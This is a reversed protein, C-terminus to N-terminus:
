IPALYRGEGTCDEIDISLGIIGAEGVPLATALLALLALLPGPLPGPLAMVAAALLLWCAAASALLWGTPFPFFPFSEPDTNCLQVYM